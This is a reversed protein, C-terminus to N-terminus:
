VGAPPAFKTSTWVAYNSPVARAVPGEPKLGTYAPFLSEKNLIQREVAPFDDALVNQLQKMRWRIKEPFYKYGEAESHFGLRSDKECLALLVKNQELEERVIANLQKLTDLREPGNARLMQERLQYFHLINYGSRFQIGLARAVGIDLMREPQNAFRQELTSLSQM